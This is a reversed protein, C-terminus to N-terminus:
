NQISYHVTSYKIKSYIYTSHRSVINLETMTELRWCKEDNFELSFFAKFTCMKSNKSNYLDLVSKRSVGPTCYSFFIFSFYFGNFFIEINFQKGLKKQLRSDSFGM